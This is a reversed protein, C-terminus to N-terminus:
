DALEIESNHHPILAFECDRSVRKRIGNYARGTTSQTVALSYASSKKTLVIFLQEVHSGSYVFPADNYIHNAHNLEDNLSITRNAPHAPVTFRDRVSCGDRRSLM